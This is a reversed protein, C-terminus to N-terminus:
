EAEVSWRKIRKYGKANKHTRTGTNMFILVRQKKNKEKMQKKTMETDKRCKGANTQM